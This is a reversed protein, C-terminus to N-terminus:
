VMTRGGEGVRFLLFHQCWVGAWLAGCLLNYEIMIRLRPTWCWSVHKHSCHVNFLPRLEVFKFPKSLEVTLDNAMAMADKSAKGTTLPSCHISYVHSIHSHRFSCCYQCTHLRSLGQGRLVRTNNNEKKYEKKYEKKFPLVGGVTLIEKDHHSCAAHKLPAASPGSQMQAARGGYGNDSKPFKLQM